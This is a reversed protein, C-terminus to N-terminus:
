QRTKRKHILMDWHRHQVGACVSPYALEYIYFAQLMTRKVLLAKMVSSVCIGTEANQGRTVKISSSTPCISPLLAM